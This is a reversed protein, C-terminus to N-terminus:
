VKENYLHPFLGLPLLLENGESLDRTILLHFFFLILVRTQWDQARKVKSIEVFDTQGRGILLLNTAPARIESNLSGM